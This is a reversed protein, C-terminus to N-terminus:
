FHDFNNRDTSCYSCKKNPRLRPVLSMKDPELRVQNFDMSKEIYGFTYGLISSYVLIKIEEFLKLFLNTRM